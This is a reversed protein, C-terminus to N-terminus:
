TEGRLMPLIAQELYSRTLGQVQSLHQECAKASGRILAPALEALALLQECTAREGQRTVEAAARNPSDSPPTSGLERLHARAHRALWDLCALENRVSVPPLPHTTDPSREAIRAREEEDALLVRLICFGKRTHAHGYDAVLWVYGLYTAPLLRKLLAEDEEGLEFPLFLSDRQVGGESLGGAEVFGYGTLMRGTCLAGYSDRVPQGKDVARRTWMRFCARDHDYTWRVEPDEHHNLMDAGPILVSVKRPGMSIRFARSSVLARAWAWVGLPLRQSWQPDAEALAQYDEIIQRRRDMVFGHMATGQLLALDARRWAVPSGASDEPRPLGDLYPAFLSAPDTLEHLLGLALMGMRRHHLKTDGLRVATPTTEGRTHTLFMWPPVQLVTQGEGLRRTSLVGREGGPLDTLVLGRVKGGGRRIWAFLDSRAEPGTSM